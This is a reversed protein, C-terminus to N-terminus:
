EDYKWMMWQSPYLHIFSDAEEETDFRRIEVSQFGSGRIIEYVIYKKEDM